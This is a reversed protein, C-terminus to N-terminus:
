CPTDAMALIRWKPHDPHHDIVAEVNWAVCHTEIYFVHTGDNKVFAPCANDLILRIFAENEVVLTRAM